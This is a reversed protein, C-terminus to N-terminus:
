PAGAKSQAPLVRRIRSNYTDIVYMAGDQDFSVGIPKNLQTDEPPMGDGNFGQKGNGAVTTITGKKLDIARIRNNLQDGVYLRGDPGFTLKHPSNLKASLAPGGDGGFGAEGTGAVTTIEGSELDIVRIRNNLTDAVYLKGKGDLALGGAPQPNSGAPFSLEAQDAPGGDGAFGPTVPTGALTTIVDDADIRRIVQNRQDLVYQVGDDSVALQSPQNLKAKRASGGDGSFGPAGGCSVTVLGTRPDYRRLKHNHWAVLTMTGDPMPVIETPHNLNVDTGPAGPPQQDSLDDPGDGVFDTGIVTELTGKKTVKRVRHNNWDVIYTGLDQDITLDIPWYFDSETLAQGDGNFGLKGNGAWTCVVGTADPCRAADAACGSACLLLAVGCRAAASTRKSERHLRM